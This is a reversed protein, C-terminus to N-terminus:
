IFICAQELHKVHDELFSKTNSYLSDGHPQPLATCLKYVDTHSNLLIFKKNLSCILDNDEYILMLKIM